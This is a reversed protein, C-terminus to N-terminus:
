RAGMIQAMADAALARQAQVAAALERAAQTTTTVPM